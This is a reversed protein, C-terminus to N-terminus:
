KGVALRRMLEEDELADAVSLAKDIARTVDVGADRRMGLAFAPLSVSAANRDTGQRALGARIADNLAQKFSIGRERMATRLLAETDADLTM